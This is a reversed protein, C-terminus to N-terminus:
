AAEATVEALEEPRSWDDLDFAERLHQRARHFRSKLAPMSHGTREAIEQMSLGDIFRLTFLERDGDRLSGLLNDTLSLVQRDGVLDEATADTSGEFIEEVPIERVKRRYGQLAINRVVTAIWGGLSGTQRFQFLRQSVRLCAEQRIDEARDPDHSIKLAVRYMKDMYRALIANMAQRDGAVAQAVQTYEDERSIPKTPQTKRM